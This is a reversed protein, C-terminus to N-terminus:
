GRGDRGTGSDGGSFFLALRTAPEDFLSAKRRYSYIYILVASSDLVGSPAKMAAIM